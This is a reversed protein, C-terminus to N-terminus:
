KDIAQRLRGLNKKSTALPKGSTATKKVCAASNKMEADWQV